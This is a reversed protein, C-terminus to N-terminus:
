PGPVKQRAPVANALRREELRNSMSVITELLKWLIDRRVEEVLLQPAHTISPLLLSDGRVHHATGHPSQLGKPGLSRLELPAPRHPALLIGHVRLLSALPEALDIVEQVIELPLGDAPLLLDPHEELAKAEPTALFIGGDRGQRTPPPSPDAQGAREDLTRLDEEEVLGRIVQVQPGGRPQLLEEDLPVPALGQDEDGVVPRKGLDDGCVDDLHSVLSQIICVHPEGLKLLGLGLAGGACGNHLLIQVALLLGQLLLDPLLCLKGRPRPRLFCAVPNSREGLLEAPCAQLLCSITLLPVCLLMANSYTRVVVIIPTPDLSPVPLLPHASSSM